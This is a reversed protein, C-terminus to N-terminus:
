LLHKYSTNIPPTSQNYQYPTNIPRTSLIHQYPTNILPEVFGLASPSEYGPTSAGVSDGDHPTAVYHISHLPLQVFFTCGFGEGESEAWIKGNKHLEM